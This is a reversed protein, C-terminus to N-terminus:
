VRQTPPIRGLYCLEKGRGMKLITSTGRISGDLLIIRMGDHGRVVDIGGWPVWLGMQIFKRAMDMGV